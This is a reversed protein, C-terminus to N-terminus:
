GVCRRGGEGRAEKVHATYVAVLRKAALQHEVHGLLKTRRRPPLSHIGLDVADEGATRDVEQKRHIWIAKLHFLSSISLPNVQVAIKRIRDLPGLKRLKCAVLLWLGKSQHVVNVEKAIRQNACGVKVTARLHHHNRKVAVFTALPRGVGGWVVLEDPVQSPPVHVRLRLHRGVVPPAHVCAQELIAHNLARVPIRKPTAQLVEEVQLILDVECRNLHAVLLPGVGALKGLPPLLVPRGHVLKEFGVKALAQRDLHVKRVPGLLLLDNDRHEVLPHAGLHAELGAGGM